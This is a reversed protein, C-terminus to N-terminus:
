DARAFQILDFLTFDNQKTARLFPKWEPEMALYSRHDGLLLGLFVEGVIQSGVAGLYEGGKLEAERLVYFWLPTRRAPFGLDALGIDDTSLPHLRLASAVREGWPLAFANGRLLNRLALSKRNPDPVFPLRFLSPSLLTDIKKSRQASSEGPRDVFQSWDV